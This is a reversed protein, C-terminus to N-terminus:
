SPRSSRIGPLRPHDISFVRSPLAIDLRPVYAERAEDLQDLIEQALWSPSEVKVFAGFGLIWTRLAADACVNLTM